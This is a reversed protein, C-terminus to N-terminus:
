RILNQVYPRLLVGTFVPLFGLGQNARGLDINEPHDGHRPPAGGWPHDGAPDSDYVPDEQGSLEANASSVRVVAPRFGDNEPAYAPLAAGVFTVLIGVLVVAVLSAKAM